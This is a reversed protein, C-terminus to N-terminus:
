RRLELTWNKRGANAPDNFWADLPTVVFDFFSGLTAASVHDLDTGTFDSDAFTGAIAREDKLQKLAQLTDWLTTARIVTNTAINRRKAVQNIAGPPPAELADDARDKPM